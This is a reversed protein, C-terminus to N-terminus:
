IADSINHGVGGVDSGSTEPRVDNMQVPGERTRNGGWEWPSNGGLGIRGLELMAGDVVVRPERRQKPRLWWLANGADGQDGGSAGRM